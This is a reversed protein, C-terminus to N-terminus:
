AALRALPTAEGLCGSDIARVAYDLSERHAEAASIWRQAYLPLHWDAVPAGARGIRVLAMYAVPAGAPTACNRVPIAHTESTFGKWCERQVDQMTEGSLQGTARRCAQAM